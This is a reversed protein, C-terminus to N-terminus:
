PGIRSLARSLRHAFEEVEGTSDFELIGLERKLGLYGGLGREKSCIIV